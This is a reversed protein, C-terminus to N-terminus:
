NSTQNECTKRLWHMPCGESQYWGYKEGNSGIGKGYHNDMIPCKCGKEIAEYSGPKPTDTM